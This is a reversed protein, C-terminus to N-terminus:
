MNALAFECVFFLTLVYCSSKVINTSLSYCHVNTIRNLMQEPLIKEIYSKTRIKMMLIEVQRGAPLNSFVELRFINLNGLM